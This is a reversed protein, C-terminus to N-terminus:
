CQLHGQACRELPMEPSKRHKILTREMAALVRLPTSLGTLRVSEPPVMRLSGLGQSAESHSTHSDKKGLTEVTFGLSPSQLVSTVGWSHTGPLGACTNGRTGKNISWNQPSVHSATVGRGLEPKHYRVSHWGRSLSVIGDRPAGPVAKETCHGARRPGGGAEQGMMALTGKTCTM